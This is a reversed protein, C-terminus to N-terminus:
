ELISFETTIYNEANLIIDENKYRRQVTLLASPEDKAEVKIIKSLTETIEICFVKKIELEKSMERECTKVAM